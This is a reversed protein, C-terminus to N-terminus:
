QGTRGERIGYNIYHQILGLYKGNSFVPGLDSYRALYSQSWFELAGQRGENIGFLGWHQTALYLNNGYAKQLDEYHQLYWKPNFVAERYQPLSQGLYPLNTYFPTSLILSAWRQGVLISGSKSFHICGGFKGPYRYQAGTLDDTYPGNLAIGSSILKLQADVIKKIAVDDGFKTSCELVEDPKSKGWYPFFGVKAVMWPIAANGLDASLDSKMKKFKEIYNDTDMKQIADSEGQHWLIMRFGGSQTIIQQILTELRIFNRTPDTKQWQTISTGGYGAEVIAIPIKLYATLVDGMAPWTSGGGGTGEGSEFYGPQPDNGIGWTNSKPDFAVFLDSNPKTLEAGTNVSNSQGATIFIDGIGTKTVISRTIKKESAELQQVEVSYWGGSPLDILKDYIDGNKFSVAETQTYLISNTKNERITVTISDAGTIGAVRIKMQGRSTNYRQYVQYSSPQILLSDLQTVKDSGLGWSALSGCLGITLIGLLLKQM